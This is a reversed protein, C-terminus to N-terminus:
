FFQRENTDLIRDVPLLIAIAKAPLGVAQLVVVMTVMFKADCGPVIDAAVWWGTTAFQRGVIRINISAGDDIYFFWAYKVM